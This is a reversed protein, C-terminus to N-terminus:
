KRQVHTSMETFVKLFLIECLIFGTPCALQHFVCAKDVSEKLEYRSKGPGQPRLSSLCLDVPSNLSVPRQLGPNSPAHSSTPLFCSHPAWLGWSLNPCSGSQHSPISAELIQEPSFGLRLIADEKVGNGSCIWFLYWCCCAMHFETICRQCWAM